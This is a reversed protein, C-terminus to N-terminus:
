KYGLRKKWASFDKKNIRDMSDYITRAWYNRRSFGAPKQIYRESLLVERTDMNVITFYLVAQDENKNFSGVNYMVGLGHHDKFDYGQIIEEVGAPTLKLHDSAEESFMENPDLAANHEKTVELDMEVEKRDLAAGVNYKEAEAKMLDNLGEMLKVLDSQTALRERDGIIKAGTFDIGLWTIPVKPDFIDKKGQALTPLVACFLLAFITLTTKM